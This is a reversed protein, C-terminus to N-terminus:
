RKVEASTSFDITIQKSSPHPGYAWTRNKYSGGYRKLATALSSIKLDLTRCALSLSKFTREEPDEKFHVTRENGITIDARFSDGAREIRTGHCFGKKLIAGRVESPECKLRKAAESVTGCFTPGGTKPDIVDLLRVPYTEITSSAQKNREFWGQDKLQKRYIKVRRARELDSNEYKARKVPVLPVFGEM